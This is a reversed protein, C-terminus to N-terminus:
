PKSRIAQAIAETRDFPSCPLDFAPTVNFSEAIRACREREAERHAAVQQVAEADDGKGDRIYELALKELESRAAPYCLSFVLDRDAQTVEVM